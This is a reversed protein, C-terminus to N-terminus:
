EQVLRVVVREGTGYRALYNEEELYRLSDRFEVETLPEHKQKHKDDEARMRKEVGELLNQYLIGSKMTRDRFTSLIDRIVAQAKEVKETRKISVGTTLLDLNIKGDKDTASQHLAVKILRVSEDVDKKEVVPSLRMKALAESIRIMSELQRPTASVTKRAQNAGGTSGMKRLNTYHSVLDMVIEDTIAPQCFKRAYSIYQAFFERKIGSKHLEGQRVSDAAGEALNSEASYLGVIHQALRRDVGENHKDLLLYILDFRSLLTPPLQINEVVSLKPDYRSKIPNAAAM